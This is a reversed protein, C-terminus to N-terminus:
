THEDNGESTLNHDCTEEGRENGSKWWHLVGRQSSWAGNGAHGGWPAAEQARQEDSAGCVGVGWRGGSGRFRVTRQSGPPSAKTAKIGRATLEQKSLVSKISWVHVGKRSRNANYFPGLAIKWGAERILRAADQEFMVGERAGAGRFCEISSGQEAKAAAQIKDMAKTEIPDPATSYPDSFSSSFVQRAIYLDLLCPRFAGPEETLYKKCEDWSHFHPLDETMGMTIRYDVADKHYVRVATMATSFTWASRM